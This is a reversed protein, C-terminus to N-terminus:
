KLKNMNKKIYKRIAKQAIDNRKFCLGNHDSEYKALKELFDIDEQPLRIQLPLLNIMFLGGHLKKVM